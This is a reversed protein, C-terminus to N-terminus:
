PDKRGQDDLYDPLPRGVARLCPTVTTEYCRLLDRAYSRFLHLARPMNAVDTEDIRGRAISDHIWYVDAFARGLREEYIQVEEREGELQKKMLEFRYHSNM